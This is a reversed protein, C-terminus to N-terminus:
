MNSMDNLQGMSKAMFLKKASKLQTNLEVHKNFQM